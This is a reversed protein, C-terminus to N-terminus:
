PCEVLVEVGLVVALVVVVFWSCWLSVVYVLVCWFVRSERYCRAGVVVVVVLVDLVVVGLSGRCM